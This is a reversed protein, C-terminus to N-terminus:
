RSRGATGEVSRELDGRLEDVDLEFAARRVPEDLAVALDGRYGACAELAGRCAGEVVAREIRCHDALGLPESRGKEEGPAAMERRRPL